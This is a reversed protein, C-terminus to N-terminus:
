YFDQSKYALFDMFASEVKEKTRFSKNSLFNDLHKFFHYDILSLDPSYPPHPLTECGLDTLKQVTMRAIHPHANDQLLIPGHWNVLAPWMKQLHSHMKDLQNCYVEATISQNANLFSYHVVDKACWWVTVMIKQPHLKLRPFQKPSEDCDFWQCSRKQNDYLFWKEDCTVLFDLFPVRDNCLFLM